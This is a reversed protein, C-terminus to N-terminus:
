SSGPLLWPYIVFCSAHRRLHSELTLHMLPMSAFRQTYCDSPQRVATCWSQIDTLVGWTCKEGKAMFNKESLIVLEAWLQAEKKSRRGYHPLLHQGVVSVPQHMSQDLFAFRLVSCRGRLPAM